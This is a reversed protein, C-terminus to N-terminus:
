ERLAQKLHAYDTAKDEVVRYVQVEFWDLARGTLQGKVYACAPQTPIEYYITIILIKWSSQWKRWGRFISSLSSEFILDSELSPIYENPAVTSVERPRVRVGLNIQPLSGGLAM